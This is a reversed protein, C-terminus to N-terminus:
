YYQYKEGLEELHDLFFIILYLLFLFTIFKGLYKKNKTYKYSIGLYGIIELSNLPRESYYDPNGNLDEPDWFGWHTRQGGINKMTYNNELIYDMTRIM